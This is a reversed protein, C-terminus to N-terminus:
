VAMFIIYGHPLFTTLFVIELILDDPEFRMGVAMHFNKFINELIDPCLPNSRYDVV